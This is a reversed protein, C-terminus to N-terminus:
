EWDSLIAQHRKVRQKLASCKTGIADNSRNPLLNQHIISEVDFDSRVLIAIEEKTWNVKKGRIPVTWDQFKDAIIKKRSLYVTAEDYLYSAIAQAGSRALCFNYIRDRKNRKPDLDMNFKQLFKCFYNKMCTSDTTFGLYPVGASNLSLSGDGDILGRLYHKELNKPVSIPCVIQSKKGCPIGLTNMQKVFLVSSLTWVASHADKKFNTTQVRESIRGGFAKQFDELLHSDIQNISIAACKHSLHGDTQLFGLFYAKMESDIKFPPVDEDRIYNYCNEGRNATTKADKKYCKRSCYRRGTKSPRKDSTNFKNGCLSCPLTIM